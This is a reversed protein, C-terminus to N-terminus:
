VKTVTEMKSCLNVLFQNLYIVSYKFFPAIIHVNTCDCGSMMHPVLSVKERCFGANMEMGDMAQVQVAPPNMGVDMEGSSSKTEEPMSPNNMLCSCHKDCEVVIKQPNLVL